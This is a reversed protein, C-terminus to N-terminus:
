ADNYNLKSCFRLIPRGTGTATPVSSLALLYIKNIGTVAASDYAIKHKMGKIIQLKSTSGVKQSGDTTVPAAGGIAVQIHGRYDYLVKYLYRKNHNYPALHNEAVGQPISTELIDTLLPATSDNAFWQFLIIRFAQQSPASASAGLEVWWNFEISRIEVSNGDRNSVTDGVTIDSLSQVVGPTSDFNVGGATIQNAGFFKKESICNAIQRCKKKFLRKNVNTKRHAKNYVAAKKMRVLAMATSLPVNRTTM